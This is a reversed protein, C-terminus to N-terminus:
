RFRLSNPRFRLSNWRFRLSNACFHANKEHFHANKPKLRRARLRSSLTASHQPLTCCPRVPCTPTATHCHPLTATRSHPQTATHCHPLTATHSHPQTVIRTACTADPPCRDIRLRLGGFIERFIKYFFMSLFGDGRKKKRRVKILDSCYLFTNKEGLFRM